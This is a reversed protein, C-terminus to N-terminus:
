FKFECNLNYDMLIEEKKKKKIIFNLMSKDIKIM